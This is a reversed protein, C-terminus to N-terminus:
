ETTEQEVRSEDEIIQNPIEWFIVPTEAVAAYYRTCHQCADGSTQNACDLDIVSIGPPKGTNEFAPSKFRGLEKSYHLSFNLLRIYAM